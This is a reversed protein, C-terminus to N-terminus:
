AKILTVMKACDHAFKWLKCRFSEVRSISVNTVLRSLDSSTVKIIEM